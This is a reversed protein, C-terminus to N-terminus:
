ARVRKLRTIQGRLQSVTKRLVALEGLSRGQAAESDRLRDEVRQGDSWSHGTPCRKVVGLNEALKTPVSWPCGCWRCVYFSMEVELAM